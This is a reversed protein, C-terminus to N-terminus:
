QPIEIESFVQIIRIATPGLVVIFITPLIFFATPFLIKVVAKRAREEAHQQRKERLTEAHVRLSKGVSTGFRESEAVLSRLFRLEPMDFRNALQELAEPMSQGMETARSVMMMETALLPHALTLERGVKQMAANLTLGGEICVVIMDMADPLGRRMASQRSTKCHDLWYNPGRLGLIGAISILLLSLTLPIAGSLALVVTVTLLLLTVTMKIGLFLPVAREGYYGAHILQVDLKRQEEPDSPVLPIAMKPIVRTAFQELPYPNAEQTHLGIGGGMRRALQGRHSSSLLGLLIVVAATMVFISTALIPDM